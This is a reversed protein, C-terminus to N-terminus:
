GHRNLGTPILKYLIRRTNAPTVWGAIFTHVGLQGWKGTPHFLTAFRPLGHRPSSTVSATASLFYHGQRHRLHQWRRPPQFSRWVSATLRHHVSALCFCVTEVSAATAAPKPQYHLQLTHPSAQRHSASSVCPQESFLVGLWRCGVSRKPKNTIKWQRM